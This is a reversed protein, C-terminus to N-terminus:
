ANGGVKGTGSTVWIKFSDLSPLNGEAALVMKVSLIPRGM